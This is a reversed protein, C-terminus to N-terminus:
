AKRNQNFVIDVEEALIITNPVNGTLVDCVYYVYSNTKKHQKGKM